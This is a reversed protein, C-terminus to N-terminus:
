VVIELVFLVLLKGFYNLLFRVSPLHDTTKTVAGKLLDGKDVRDARSLTASMNVVDSVLDHCLDHCSNNLFVFFNLDFWM